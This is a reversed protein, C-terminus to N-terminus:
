KLQIEYRDYCIARGGFGEKQYILSENLYSGDNETSIGFDFYKSDSYVENILHDFILDLAGLERGKPSAAIYQSHAVTKTKYIVTGAIIEEGTKAVYLKIEDPFRSALLKMEELSHVPTLGHRENLNKELIMWFATFDSNQEIYVDNKKAKRIGYKRINRFKLRDEQLITSSVGRAKISANNRFLAYLDEESPIEHYIHPVPKYIFKTFGKDCLYSIIQKFIDLAEATTISRSMVLGGYTLGAHSSFIKGFSTAPLVAAISTKNLFVLSHDEYRDSHYDMYGRKFLFTSNKSIDIFADWDDKMSADYRIMLFSAM